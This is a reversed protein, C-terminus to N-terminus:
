EKRLLGSNLILQYLEEALQANHNKLVEYHTEAEARQDLWLYLNGLEFREFTLRPSRALEQELTEIHTEAVGLKVAALTLYRYAQTYSGAWTYEDCYSIATRFASKAGVWNKQAVCVLGLNYYPGFDPKLMIATKSAAMSEDYRRLRYFAYGLVEHAGNLQPDIKIAQQLLPVAEKFKDRYALNTGQLYLKQAKENVVRPATETDNAAALLPPATGEKSKSSEYVIQLPETRPSWDNVELISGGIFAALLVLIIPAFRNRKVAADWDQEAQALTVRANRLPTQLEHRSTEIEHKLRRLYFPGSRLEHELQRQWRDLEREVQLRAATTVGRRADFVFERELQQRWGLLRQCRKAALGDIQRLKYEEVDAATAIGHALLEAKIGSSVGEIEALNIQFQGLFEDLQRARASGELERLKYARVRALNEYNDRHMRLENLKVLFREDGSQQAWQQELQRLVEEAHEKVQRLHKLLPEKPAPPQSSFLTQVSFNLATPDSVKAILGAVTAVVLLWLFALPLDTLGGIALGACLAGGLAVSLRKRRAEVLAAVDPSLLSPHAPAPPLQAGVPGGIATVERWIEDLRFHDRRGEAGGLLFNFLRVRAGAEIECWPCTALERYYHHGNHVACRRLSKALAELPEIWQRPQPRAPLQTEPNSLFACRFLDALWASVAELALTGPPQCMQRREADQGYAFRYEKIARELPMEDNGLFRGSFPHRGMFLLQFIVVALGFCDHAQTRDIERLCADQLEPPTYEPFGGECRYTKNEAEVQFSDCDLLFVTAQRTVLINKPNVDGIVLGHEHVAAVARAINAAVYILFAWSAEPFKQLRSKPSHLAHVEEAHSIKKMIFGIVDGKIAGSEGRLVDVPWAALKCLRETGLRSLVILKEAKEAAPPQYYLKAVLDGRGQVEYVEGEGGSGLKDGLRIINQSTYFIKSM